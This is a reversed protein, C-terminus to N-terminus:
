QETLANKWFAIMRWTDLLTPESSVDVHTLFASLLLRVRTHPRLHAALWESEAAPIVRDDSGHLLYVPATPVPSRDPSLSRDQGLAGIYPSLRRGLEAVNRDIALKMLTASPDPLAAQYARTAVLVEHAHEPSVRVLASARLYGDLGRRLRLVQDPPVAADAAQYLLVALAYDHPPRVVAVSGPPSPERGTCYYQLVRPLNAHGGFSLVYAVHDRISGRGAAVVSLGGSFSVGIMGIPKGGSLPSRSALWAASQEIADTLRASLDYQRLEPIDPTIVNVGTASLERALENLRPEEIGDPHVGSVLLVAKSAGRAPAFVRARIAGDRTPISTMSTTVRLAERRAADGIVTTSHGARLIMAAARWYPTAMASVIVIALVIGALAIRATLKM